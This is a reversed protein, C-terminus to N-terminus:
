REHSPSPVRIHELSPPFYTQRDKLKRYFVLLLPPPNPCVFSRHCENPKDSRAIINGNLSNLCTGGLEGEGKGEITYCKGLINAGGSSNGSRREMRLLERVAEAEGVV